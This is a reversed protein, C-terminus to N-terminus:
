SHPESTIGVLVLRKHRPQEQVFHRVKAPAYLRKPKVGGQIWARGDAGDKAYVRGLAQAPGHTWGAHALNKVIRRRLGPRQGPSQRVVVFRVWNDDVSSRVDADYVVKIAGPLPFPVDVHRGRAALASAAVAVAVLGVLLLVPRVRM